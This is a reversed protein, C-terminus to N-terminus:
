AAQRTLDALAVETQEDLDDFALGITRGSLSRHREVFALKGKLDIVKGEEVTLAAQVNRGGLHNEIAELQEPSLKVTSADIAVGRASLDITQAKFKVGACKFEVSLRTHVRRTTRRGVERYFKALATGTVQKLRQARIPRYLKGALQLGSLSKELEDRVLAVVPLGPLVENAFRGVALNDEVVTGFDMVLIDFLGTGLKAEADKRTISISVAHGAGRMLSRILYASEEYLDTILVNAM